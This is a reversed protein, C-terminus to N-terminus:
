RILTQDRGPGVSIYGVKVGLDDEILQIYDRAARPLDGWTRVGSIDEQWGEM